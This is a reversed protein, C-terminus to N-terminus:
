SRFRKVLLVFIQLSTYGLYLGFITVLGIISATRPSGRQLPYVELLSGARNGQRGTWAFFGTATGAAAIKAVIMQSLCGSLDWPSLAFCAEFALWGSGIWFIVFAWLTLEIKGSSDRIVCPGAGPSEFREKTIVQAIMAGIFAATFFLTVTDQVSLGYDLGPGFTKALHQLVAVDFTIGLGFLAGLKVPYTRPSRGGSLRTVIWFALGGILAVTVFPISLVAYTLFLAYLASLVDAM